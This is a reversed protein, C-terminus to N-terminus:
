LRRTEEATSLAAEFAKRSPNYALEPLHARFVIFHAMRVAGQIQENDAYLAEAKLDRQYQSYYYGARRVIREDLLVRGEHDVVPLGAYADCERRFLAAAQELFAMESKVIAMVRLDISEPGFTMANICFVPREMDHFIELKSHHRVQMLFLNEERVRGQKIWGEETWTYLLAGAVPQRQANLVVSAVASDQPINVPIRLPCNQISRELIDPRAQRTGPTLVPEFKRKQFTEELPQKFSSRNEEVLQALNGAFSVIFKKHRVDSPAMTEPPVMGVSPHPQEIPSLWTGTEDKRQIEGRRFPRKRRRSAEKRPKHNYVREKVQGYSATIELEGLNGDLSGELEGM